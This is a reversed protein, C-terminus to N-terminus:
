KFRNVLNAFPEVADQLDQIANNLGEYDISDIKEMAAAITEANDSVFTNLSTSTATISDSMGVLGTAASEVQTLATQANELTTQVDALATEAKTVLVNIKPLEIVLCLILIALATMSVFMSIRAYLTRKKNEELIQELLEMQDLETKENEGM